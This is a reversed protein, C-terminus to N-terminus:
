RLQLMTNIESCCSSVQHSSTPHVASGFCIFFQASPREVGKWPGEESFDLIESINDDKYFAFASPASDLITSWLAPSVISQGSLIRSRARNMSMLLATRKVKESESNVTDECFGLCGLKPCQELLKFITGQAAELHAQDTVIPNRFLDPVRLNPSLSNLIADSITDIRCADFEATELQSCRSFYKTAMNKLGISDLDDRSHGCSFAKLAPTDLM